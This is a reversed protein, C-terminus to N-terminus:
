FRSLLNIKFGEFPEEIRCVGGTCVLGGKESGAFAHLTHNESIDWRIEAVKWQTGKSELLVEQDRIEWRGSVSLYSFIGIDLLFMNDRFELATGLSDIRVGRTEFGAKVSHSGLAALLEVHPILEEKTEVIPEPWRYLLSKVSALVTPGKKWPKGKIEGYAEEFGLSDASIAALSSKNVTLYWDSMPNATVDVMWGQEDSARNITYNDLNALPPANYRYMSGGYGLSDYRFYEVTTAVKPLFFTLAGYIGTGEGDAFLLKDWGEKRAIEAFLIFPGFAPEATASYLLTKKPISSGYERSSLRIANFTFPISKIPLLSFSGGQLLDTTDNVVYYKRNTFHTNRPKGSFLSLEFLKKGGRHLYTYSFILGDLDRQINGLDDDMQNLILGRGFSKSFTGARIAWESKKFGLFRRRLGEKRSGSAVESPEYIFWEAMARFDGYLANVTLIDEFFHEENGTSDEWQWYNLKNKGYIRLSQANVTSCTFLLLLLLLSCSRSIKIAM